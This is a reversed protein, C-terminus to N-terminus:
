QHLSLPMVQKTQPTGRWPKSSEERCKAVEAATIASANNGFRTRVYTLINAIEEDTLYDQAPM